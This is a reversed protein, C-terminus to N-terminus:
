KEVYDGKIDICKQWRKMLKKIGDRYFAVSQGNLWENVAVKVDAVSDFSTGRLHSKLKGFLFFDSPALDPSYPPHQLIEFGLAAAKQIAVASSHAPANDHLLLVGKTVMGRRKSKIEQKLQTLLSAYYDGTITRGHELFDALLAGEGDWFLSLMVKGVSQVAKFKIPPQEGPQRWEMSAQKTEPDYCFVWCEDETVLRAFFDQENAVARDLHERSIRVREARQMPTLMRPVWRASVKNMHLHDHLISEVSGYSIKLERAITDVHIRRDELVLKEVKEVMELTTSTEPRGRGPEDELTERGCKFERAFRKVVDYSPAGEKYVNVMRKHINTPSQGEKTLFKIVARHEVNQMKSNREMKVSEFM